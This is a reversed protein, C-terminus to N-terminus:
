QFIPCIYNEFAAAKIHAADWFKNEDDITYESISNFDVVPAISTMKEKWRAYKEPPYCAFHRRHVPMIVVTLEVNWDRCLEVIERFADFKRAALKPEIPEWHLMARSNHIFSNEFTFLEYLAPESFKGRPEYASFDRKFFRNFRVCNLSDFFADASLLTRFCNAVTIRDANLQEADFGPMSEKNYVFMEYDVALIIKELNPNSNRAARTFALLEGPQANRVAANYSNEGFVTPDIAFDAKSNGLVVVKPKRNILEIAKFLREHNQAAEAFFNFGITRESQWVNYPDVFFNLAAISICLALFIGLTAGFFRKWM